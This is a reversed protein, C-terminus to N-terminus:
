AIQEAWGCYEAGAEAVVWEGGLIQVYVLQSAAAIDDAAAAMDIV